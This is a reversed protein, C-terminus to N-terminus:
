YETRLTVTDTGDVGVGNTRTVSVDFGGSSCAGAATPYGSVGAGVCVNAPVTNSRRLSETANVMASQLAYVARIRKIKGEAIRSEQTMLTLSALVLVSIILMIGIVIVLVIAKKYKKFPM